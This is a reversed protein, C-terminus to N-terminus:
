RLAYARRRFLRVAVQLFAHTVFVSTGLQHLHQSPANLAKNIFVPESKKLLSFAIRVIKM